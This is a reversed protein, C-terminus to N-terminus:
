TSTNPSRTANACTNLEGDPFWRYLPARSDDLITRPPVVWDILGAAEGWFGAPDALSREYADAYAGM